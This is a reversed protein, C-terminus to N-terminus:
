VNGRSILLTAKVQSEVTAANQQKVTLGLKTLRASFADVNDFSNSAIELSLQNNRYDLHKLQVNETEALSKGIDALLSLLVNGNAESLLKKIKSQMREKPSVLATAQPFNKQYIAGIEREIHSLRFHLIIFSIFHSFFLLAIWALAAMGAFRWIKKSETSERKPPYTGQLLNIMPLTAIKKAINKLFAEESLTSRILEVPPKEITESLKLELMMALNQQDCGFGSYKGTRVLNMENLSCIHWNNEIHDIALSAPILISPTVDMEKLIALWAAMKQKSVVAVSLSGNKQQEGIAFHLETLDDILEEELAFPLAQLLRSRSLKPLTTETLLVDEAPVIVVFDYENAFSKLQLLDGHLTTQTIQGFENVVVWSSESLFLIVHKKM